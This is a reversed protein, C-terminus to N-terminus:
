SDELVHSLGVTQGPRRVSTGWVQAGKFNDILDRHIKMCLDKVTTSGRLLVAENFDPPGGPPKTYVRTIDLMKYIMQSIRDLNLDYIVSAVVSKPIHALRDIEEITQTDIKNYVYMAPLYKLCKIHFADILRDVTIDERILIHGSRFRNETAISKIFELDMHTQPVTFDISVGGRINPTIQVNPPEENVRIGFSHLENTLTQIENDAKASDIVFVILDCSRVVGLVQKGKGYGASAGQLIGPLDLLQIKVGNVNLIAPIATVTTFDYNGVLSQYDTIKSLLSSKGVSPFGFLCVRADGTRAVDFQPGGTGTSSDEVLQARLKALQSKLMGLHRETAKNIQTRSMEKEIDAIREQIGM